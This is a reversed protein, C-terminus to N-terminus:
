RPTHTRGRDFLRPHIDSHNDHHEVVIDLAYVESVLESTLAETPHGDAVIRGNQLLIIHDCFFAAHVLDHIAVIASIGQEHTITRVLDLTDVQYRLDLASTPEDLLLVQPQQALARAILVRQAQGGSLSAVNRNSLATLDLREIVNEVIEWDDSGPRMGFHPTRGLLVSERVSLDFPVESSQPVYSVLRAATRRPLKLLDEDDLLVTGHQPAHVRAIVKTLTSKGSGNPGLLACFSGTQVTFTAGHLIPNKGYSFGIDHVDLTM